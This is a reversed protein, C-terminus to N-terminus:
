TWGSSRPQAALWDEVEELSWRVAKPGLKLPKPFDSGRMARYVSSTSLGVREKVESIRLLKDM